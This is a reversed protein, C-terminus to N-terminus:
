AEIRLVCTNDVTNIVLKGNRSVMSGVTVSSVGCDMGILLEPGFEGVSGGAAVRKPNDPKTAAIAPVAAVVPAIGLMRLFARRKM